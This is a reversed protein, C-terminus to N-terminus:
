RVTLNTPPTPPSGGMYEYAGLDPPANAARSMGEIDTSVIGTLDVGANVPAAGVVLHYDHEAQNLFYTANTALNTATTPGINNRMDTTPSGSTVVIARASAVDVTNHYVVRPYTDSANNELMIGRGPSTINYIVNNYATAGTGLRIASSFFANPSAPGTDHITNNRIVHAPNSDWHQPAAVAENVEIAAGGYSAGRTNLNCAYLTNGDILIDHTGPKLEIGEDHTNFITNSRVTIHHTNDVTSESTSSGIYVGEGDYNWTGTDHVTSNSLTVYSSNFRIHVGEQGITYVSLSDLVLNNSSEVFVGQNFNTVAFGILKIYSSNVIKV